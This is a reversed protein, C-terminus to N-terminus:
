DLQKAFGAVTGNNENEHKTQTSCGRGFANLIDLSAALIADNQKGKKQQGSSGWAERALMNFMGSAVKVIGAPLLYSKCRNGAISM